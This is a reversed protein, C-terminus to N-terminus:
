YVDVHAVRPARRLSPQLRAVTYSKLHTYM